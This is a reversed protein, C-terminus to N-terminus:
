AYLVRQAKIFAYAFMFFYVFVTMSMCLLAIAIENNTRIFPLAASTLIILLGGYIMTKIFYGREVYMGALLLGVGLSPYWIISYYIAPVNFLSPIIGYTVLFPIAMLISGLGHFRKRVEDEKPLMRKLKITTLTAAILSLALCLWIIRYDFGLLTLSWGLMLFAAFIMGFVVWSLAAAICSMYRELRVALDGLRTLEEM